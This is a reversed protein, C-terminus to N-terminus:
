LNLSLSLRGVTMRSVLRAGRRRAIPDLRARLGGARVYTALLNSLEVLIFSEGRWDADRAFLAQAAATQDGVILPYALVNTDVVVM